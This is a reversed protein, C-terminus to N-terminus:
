RVPLVAGKDPQTVWLTGDTSVEGNGLRTKLAIRSYIVAAPTMSGFCTITGSAHDVTYVREGDSLVTSDVGGLSMPTRATLNAPDIPSVRDADHDVALVTSGEQVVTVRHSRSPQISVEATPAAASASVRSVTGPATNVLWATRNAFDLESSDRSRGHLAAPVLVALGMLVTITASLLRRRKPPRGGPRSGDHPMRRLRM